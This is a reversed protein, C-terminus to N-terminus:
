APTNSLKLWVNSGFRLPGTEKAPLDAVEAYRGARIAAVDEVWARLAKYGQDGVQLKVGGEHKVAGLPKRLILSKEPEKVDVLRSALLYEMTAEAGGKKFWAIRPGFKKVGKDAQTTGETHCSMCRFRMAWVNREFSELLRDKRAHRIVEVPRSPKGREKEGLKPSKVLKADACWAKIWAAFAENEAKRTKAHILAAAKKDEAGMQILQLIKSKEPSKLDILGQDRLSRFTKEHDPLIYDKLDVGALHCQVCSSPNPSKFIPLIRQEFVKEPGDAARLSSVFLCLSGGVTLM